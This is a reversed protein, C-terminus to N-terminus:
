RRSTRGYYFHLVSLAPHLPIHLLPPLLGAMEKVVVWGTYTYLPRNRLVHSVEVGDSDPHHNVTRANIGVFCYFFGIVLYTAHNVPQECGLYVEGGSASLPLLVVGDCLVLSLLVLGRGLLEQWVPLVPSGCLM